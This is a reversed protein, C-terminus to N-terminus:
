MSYNGTKSWAVMLLDESPCQTSKDSCLRAADQDRSRDQPSVSDRLRSTLTFAPRREEKHGEKDGATADACM